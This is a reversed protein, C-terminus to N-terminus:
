REVVEQCDKKEESFQFRVDAIEGSCLATAGRAAKAYLLPAIFFMRPQQAHHASKVAGAIIARASLAGDAEAGAGANAGTVVVSGADGM